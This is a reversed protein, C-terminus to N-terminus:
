DDASTRGMRRIRAGLADLDLPKEKGTSYNFYTVTRKQNNASLICSDDRGARTMLVDMVEANRIRGHLTMMDTLIGDLERELDNQRQRAPIGAVPDPELRPPDTAVSHRRSIADWGNFPAGFQVVAIAVIQSEYFYGDELPADTSGHVMVRGIEADKRLHKEADAASVGPLAGLFEIAQRFAIMRGSPNYQQARPIHSLFDIVPFDPYDGMRIDDRDPTSPDFQEVEVRLFRRAPYIWQEPEGDDGYRFPDAPSCSNDEKFRHHRYAQIWGDLIWREIEYDNAGLRERLHAKTQHLSFTSEFAVTDPQEGCTPKAM